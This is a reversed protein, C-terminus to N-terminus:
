VNPADPIPTTDGPEQGPVEALEPASSFAYDRWSTFRDPTEVLHSRRPTYDANADFDPRTTVDIKRELAAPYAASHHTRLRRQELARLAWETSHPSDITSSTRRACGTL